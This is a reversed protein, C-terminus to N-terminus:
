PSREAELARLQPRMRRYLLRAVERAGRENTHVFDYMVPEQLEDLGDAIDVVPPRLRSRAERYAIEWAEADTGLAGVLEEEGPRVRKSYILPQWFFAAPFGYSRALRQALDVGRSHIWAAYRGRLRPRESQDGVWPSQLAQQAVRGPERVLGLDQGLQHLASTQAWGEYLDRSASDEEQPRDTLGIALRSSIERNLVTKPESHLGQGFQGVLENAGDYFVALDPRTGRSILKQLLLVEQWNAYALRGYNVVRVPIGDAEALRAFESPITHGDRQFMGFMTSGGFFFIELARPGNAGAPEYSRRIGHRVNVYEGESAAMTWGLFPHYRKRQWADTVEVGVQGRWPEEEGAGVDPYLMLSGGQAADGPEDGGLADVGAGIALDVLVLLAILGLVLRLRTFPRRDAGAAAGRERELTFPRDYLERGGRDPAPRWFSRPPPPGWPELPNHRVIRLVLALPAFVLIQIASLVVFSLVRGAVRRVAAEFRAVAASVTPSVASAVTVTTGVALLVGAAVGHGLRWLVVVVALALGARLAIGGYGPGKREPGEPLPSWDPPPKRPPGPVKEVVASSV